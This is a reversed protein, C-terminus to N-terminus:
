GGKAKEKEKAANLWALAEEETAFFGTDKGRGMAKVVIKALMRLGPKAGYLAIKQWKILKGKETCVKRTERDIIDQANEGLCALFYKIQEETFNDKIEDFFSTAIEPNFSEFIDARTIGEKEDFWIKYNM